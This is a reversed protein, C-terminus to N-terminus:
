VPLEANMRHIREILLEFSGMGFLLTVDGEIKETELSIHSQGVLFHTQALMVAADAQSLTEKLHNDPTEDHYTPIDYSISQGLVNTISGMVGNLLINGVETLVSARLSDLDPTGLEEGTLMSVLKSASDAPFVLTATGQLKGSFPLRVAALNQGEISRMIEGLDAPDVFRVSPVRLEVHAGVMDNLAGAARGVGINILERLADIADASVQTM